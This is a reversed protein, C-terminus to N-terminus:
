EDEGEGRKQECNATVPESPNINWMPRYNRRRPQSEHCNSDTTWSSGTPM